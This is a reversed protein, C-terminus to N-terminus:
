DKNDKGFQLKEYIDYNKGHTHPEVYEGEDPHYGGRRTSRTGSRSLHMSLYEHAGDHLQVYQDHISGTPELDYRNTQHDIQQMVEYYRHGYLPAVKQDQAPNPAIHQDYKLYYQEESQHHISRQSPNQTINRKM